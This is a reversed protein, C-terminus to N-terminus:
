EITNARQVMSRDKGNCISKKFTSSGVVAGLHRKGEITIKINTDKFTSKANDYADPKVILWCKKAEPFYGFKPGLKCLVEWWHKLNKISSGASFDDAYATM